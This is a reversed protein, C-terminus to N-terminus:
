ADHACRFGCFIQRRIPHDWNRFTARAAIHDSAWSGGRLVRYDGDWFVESYEPYPFATFGPYARFRSSTWEWVDGILGIVGSPSAGLPFSGVPAPGDHMQGLNAHAATWPGNGWPNALSTGTVPDWRAAKEWEAETPLRKGAWTAFAEAEYFSVHQVPESLHLALDLERGFRLITWDNGGSNTWYQPAVLAAEQRWAWGKASWLLPNEYGGDDIFTLHSSNTVPLSDIWFPAVVVAHADLENDYAWPTDARTTGMEFPGGEIFTEGVNAMPLSQSTPTPLSSRFRITGPPPLAAHGRLQHTALLTEAHQHEHQVVMGYVFADRILPQESTPSLDTDPDHLLAIVATRVEANYVRADAPSLIPLSPREWRPHEFANYLDDLSPDIAVRGDIERLLWLEEYNGIHALDWVFPSMLPSVQKCQDEVSLCDVLALTRERARTLERDIFSRIETDSGSPFPPIPDSALSNGALSNRAPSNSALLKSM